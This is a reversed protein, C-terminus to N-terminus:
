NALAALMDDVMAHAQPEAMPGKLTVSLGAVVTTLMVAIREAKLESRLSGEAQARKVADTVLKGRIAYAKELIGNIEPDRLGKEVITNLVLCGPNGEDGNCSMEVARHLAARIGDLATPGSAIITTVELRLDELYRKLARIFLSHKDGFAQYLSGKHLGTAEILDAMSTNEYGKRWFVRTAIDLVEDEDFCRPRGVCRCTEEKLVSSMPADYFM